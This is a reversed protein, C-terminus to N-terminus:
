CTFSFAAWWHTCGAQGEIQRYRADKKFVAYFLYLNISGQLGALRKFRRGNPPPLNTKTNSFPTQDM